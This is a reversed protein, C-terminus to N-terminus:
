PRVPVFRWANKDEASNPLLKNVVGLAALKRQLVPFDGFHKEKIISGSFCSAFNQDGAVATPHAHTNEDPAGENNSRWSSHPCKFDSIHIKCM